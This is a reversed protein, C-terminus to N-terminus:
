AYPVPWATRQHELTDSAKKTKNIDLQPKKSRTPPPETESPRIISTKAQNRTALIYVMVPSARSAM